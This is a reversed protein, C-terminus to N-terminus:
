ICKGGKAKNEPTAGRHPHHKAKNITQAVVHSLKSGYGPCLFPWSEM